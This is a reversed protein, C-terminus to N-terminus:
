VAAFNTLQCLVPKHTIITTHRFLRGAAITLSGSRDVDFTERDALRDIHPAPHAIPGVELTHVLLLNVPIQSLM